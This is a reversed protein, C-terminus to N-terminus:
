NGANATLAYIPQLISVLVFGVGVGMIIMIIPELLTSLNKAMGDVEKEFFDGLVDFVGALDGSQEGVSVLQGVMAPFYKSKRIATSVKIGNEVDRSIKAIEEEYITNGVVGGLTKFVELVPVGAQSLSAFSQAFRALIAKQSFTGLVPLKLTFVDWARRGHPNKLALKFLFICVVLGILLLFGQHIFIGSLALLFKTSAPLATGSSAFLGSLQPLIFTIVMIIVAVLLVSVIAPYILAGRVKGKLEYEKQQQTTLKNLVASLNGTKEASKTMQCYIQSFSGPFKSLAASFTMGGEVDTIIEQLIQRLGKSSSEEQLGRLAQVLTIGANLMVALQETFIIREKLKIRPKAVPLKFSMGRIPDVALILGGLKRTKTLADNLSAADLKGRILRGDPQRLKYIYSAM